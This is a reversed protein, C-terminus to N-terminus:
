IKEEEQRKRENADTRVGQHDDTDTIDIVEEIEWRAAGIQDLIVEAQNRADDDNEAVICLVDISSYVIHYPKKM